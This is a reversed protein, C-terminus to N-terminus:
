GVEKAESEMFEREPINEAWAINAKDFLEKAKLSITGTTLIGSVTGKEIIKQAEGPYINKKTKIEIYAM